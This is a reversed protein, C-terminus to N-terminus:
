FYFNKSLISFGSKEMTVYADLTQAFEKNDSCYFFSTPTQEKVSVSFYYDFFKKGIPQTGLNLMVVAMSKINRELLAAAEAESIM